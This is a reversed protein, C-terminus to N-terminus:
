SDLKVTDWSEDTPLCAACFGEPEDGTTGDAAVYPVSVLYTATRDCNCCRM